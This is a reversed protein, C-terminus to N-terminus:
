RRIKDIDTIFKDKKKTTYYSTVIFIIKKLSKYTIIVIMKKRKSLEFILKYTDDHPKLSSQQQIHILKDPNKLNSLVENIDVGHRKEIKSKINPKIKIREPKTNRLLKKMRPVNM